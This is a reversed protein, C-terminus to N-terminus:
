PLGVEDARDEVEPFGGFIHREVLQALRWKTLPPQHPQPLGASIANVNQIQLILAGACEQPEFDPRVTGKGGYDSNNPDTSHCVMGPAKGTRLGNWLRRINAKTYWKAQHKVGHNKKLWPCTQCVRLSKKEPKTFSTM